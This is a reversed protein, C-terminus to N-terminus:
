SRQWVIDYSAEAHKEHTDLVALQMGRDKCDQNAESWTKKTIGTHLNGPLVLVHSVVKVIFQYM